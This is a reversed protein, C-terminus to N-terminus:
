CGAFVLSHGAHGDHQGRHATWSTPLFSEIVLEHSGRLALEFERDLLDPCRAIYADVAVWGSRFLLGVGRAGSSGSSLSGYRSLCWLALAFGNRFLHALDFGVRLAFRVLLACDPLAHVGVVASFWQVGFSVLDVGLELCRMSVFFWILCRSAESSCKSDSMWFLLLM